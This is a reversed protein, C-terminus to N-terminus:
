SKPPSTKYKYYFMVLFVIVFYVFVSNYTAGRGSYVIISTASLPLSVILLYLDAWKKQKAFYYILFFLGWGMFPLPITSSMTRFIRKVVITVYWFPDSQIQSIVKEKIIQEYEDIEDFKIYYLKNEDYYNDLHYKDSYELDMGYEETLIPMAYRYAVKDNWEFGYKNDFDGLGCFIPHWLRHGPITSWTYPHGGAEEVLTITKEFKQQFHNSIANKTLYFAGVGVAAITLKLFINKQKSLISILILSLLVMSIENRFESFFGIISGSIAILLINLYLNEKKYISFVNLGLVLFFTAGIIGFLNENNYVEYLYFPTLNILVVLLLGFYVKQLRWFGLYLVILSLTFVLMNFLKISPNEPSGALISNPLFAWIRANEGLRSWHMYEMILSEGNEEIEKFADEKSYKLDENLTALPFDGTYYHFYAFHKAFKHSFGSADGRHQINPISVHNTFNYVLFNAFIISLLIILLGKKAELFSRYKNIKNFM